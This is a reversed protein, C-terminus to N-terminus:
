AFSILGAPLLGNIILVSVRVFNYVRNLVRYIHKTKKKELTHHVSNGNLTRSCVFTFFSLRKDM